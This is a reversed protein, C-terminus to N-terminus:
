AWEVLYRPLIMHPSAVIFIGDGVDRSQFMGKQLAEAEVSVDTPGLPGDKCRGNLAEVLLLKNNDRSYGASVDPTAGLYIGNGHVKGVAIPIDLEPMRLGKLQILRFNKELTGHFCYRIVAPLKRADLTKKAAAFRAELPPNVCLTVKTLKKGVLNIGLQTVLAQAKSFHFLEASDGGAYAEKPSIEYFTAGNEFTAPMRLQLSPAGALVDVYILYRPLVRRPDFVAYEDFEVCTEQASTKRPMMASDFKESKRRAPDGLTADAVAALKLGGLLVDCLLLAGSRGGFYQAQAAKSSDPCLYVAAGLMNHTHSRPGASKRERSVRFGDRLIGEVNSLATGHFLQMINLSPDHMEPVAEWFARKSAPIDLVEIKTVLPTMHHGPQVSRLVIDSVRRFDPDDSRLVRRFLSADADAVTKANSLALEIEHRAEEARAEVRALRAIEILDLCVRCLSGDDSAACVQGCTKVCSHGCPTPLKLACPASCPPLATSESNVHRCEISVAHGCQPYTFSVPVACDHMAKSHGRDEMVHCRLSCVHGCPMIAKCLSKCAPLGPRARAFEWCEAKPPHGCSARELPGTMVQRCKMAAHAADSHCTPSTCQHGCELLDICPRPCRSMSALVPIELATRAAAFPSGGHRSCVLPLADGLAGAAALHAHVRNWNPSLKCFTASDGVILLSRRARSVAVVLRERDKMFGLRDGGGRVLSLIVHDAEDGQFEDITCVRPLKPLLVAQQSSIPSLAGGDATAAISETTQGEPHGAAAEEVTALPLNSCKELEKRILSVQAAYGTLVVIRSPHVGNVMHWAAARAVRLAEPTNRHGPAGGMSSDESDGHTWWFAAHQWFPLRRRLSSHATALRDLAPVGVGDTYGAPGYAGVARVVDALRPHM